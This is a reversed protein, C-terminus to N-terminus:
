PLKEGRQPFALYKNEIVGDLVDILYRDATFNISKFDFNAQKIRSIIKAGAGPKSYCLVLAKVYGAEVFAQNQISRMWLPLFTRDREGLTKIRSRMNKFSNPFVRQHDSDSILPINSDIKIADYSVLVKSNINNPLNVTQSISKGDKEFEDVVEVYVAEYLTEQTLSDKAEAYQLNGFRIQKRYHNQGMAQVYNVAEVSEIGAFVLIKLETQISFNTDGARYLDDSRFINNDTIFNFWALRKEKTQFAKLYLNAFTKTNDAVVLMTFAKVSEAFNASDKAVIEFKFTKDFSTNNDFAPTYDRSLTSSDEGPTLSDVREYFRTLGPGNEDGFQKVKGIIIGTSQFDL